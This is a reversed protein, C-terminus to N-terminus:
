GAMDRDLGLRSAVSRDGQDVGIRLSREGFPPVGPLRLRRGERVDGGALKLGADGMESAGSKAEDDDVGRGGDGVRDGVRDPM